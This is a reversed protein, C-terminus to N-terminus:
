SLLKSKKWKGQKYYFVSLIAGLIWGVPWSLWIGLSGLGLGVSFVYSLIVRVFLDTFTAIMFERMAGAGKLVGDTILKLGVITYFPAIIHMFLLGEELVQTVDEKNSLFLGILEKGFGFFLIMLSIGLLTGIRLAAKYGEKIRETKGAGINQATFSSLGSSFTSVSVLVFTNLKIVSSYAAMVVAGYSNVLKQVFLNGVSVFSSQLITPIAVTSIRGLMGWSFREYDEKPEMRNLRYLLTITAFVAALGQCLFTAWAVGAVGMQFNRVFLVDMIMNGVSSAILFYLPTKSDGLATFVGNSINYFFLFALGWIYIRLYLASDAFVEEPTSLLHLLQNCSLAGAVTFFITLAIVAIISTWIATKMEKYKKAGFYQSIVVSSGASFGTAVAIFIATIPYSAGVAALANMGAFKGAVVSDVMNYLQQFVVSFLLPLSFKWLVASPKGQTLDIVM